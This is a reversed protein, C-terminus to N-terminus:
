YTGYVLGTSQRTRPQYILDAGAGLNDGRQFIQHPSRTPAPGPEWVRYAPMVSYTLVPCFDTTDPDGEGFHAEWNVGIIPGGLVPAPTGPYPPAFTLATHSVHAVIYRSSTPLPVTELIPATTPATLPTGADIFDIDLEVVSGGGGTVTVTDRDETAVTVNGLVVDPPTQRIVVSANDWGTSGEGQEQVWYGPAEGRIETPPRIYDVGDVLEPPIRGRITWDDGEILHMRSAPSYATGYKGEAPADPGLDYQFVNWFGDGIVHANDGSGTPFILQFDHPGLTLASQALVDAMAADWSSEPSDDTVTSSRAIFARRIAAPQPDTTFGDRVDGWGGLPGTTPWVRMKVQQIVASGTTAAIALQFADDGNLLQDATFTSPIVLTDPGTVTHSGLATPLTLGTDGYTPDIGEAAAVTVTGSLVELVWSVTVDSDATELYDLDGPYTFARWEDGTNLTRSGDRAVIDLWLTNDVGSTVDYAQQIGLSEGPFPIM